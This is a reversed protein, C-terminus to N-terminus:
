GNGCVTDVQKGESSTLASLGVGSHKFFERRTQARALHLKLNMPNDKRKMTKMM